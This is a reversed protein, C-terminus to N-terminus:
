YDATVLGKYYYQIYDKELLEEVSSVIICATDQIFSHNTYYPDTTIIIVPTKYLWAWALEYITGTLPRKEGFTDLSVILLDAIRVCKHDRKVFAKAPINSKLGEDDIMELAKGNLPDLFEIKGHWKSQLDFHERIKKRWALCEQLRNNSIYGILYIKM